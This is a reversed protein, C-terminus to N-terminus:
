EDVLPRDDPGRLHRFREPNFPPWTQPWDDPRPRKGAWYHVREWGGQGNAVDVSVVVRDTREYAWALAADLDPLPGSEDLLESRGAVADAEWHADWCSGPESWRPDPQFLIWVSGTGARSSSPPRTDAGETTLACTQGSRRRICLSHSWGDLVDWRRIREPDGQACIGAPLVPRSCALSRCRHDGEPQPRIM